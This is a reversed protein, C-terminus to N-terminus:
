WRVVSRHGLRPPRLAHSLGRGRHHGVHRQRRGAGAAAGGAVEEGGPACQRCLPGGRREADGRPEAGSRRGSGRSPDAEQADAAGAREGAAVFTLHQSVEDESERVETGALRVAPDSHSFNICDKLPASFFEGPDSHHLVFGTLDLVDVFGLFVPPAASNGLHELVPASLVDHESLMVLAKEVTDHASLTVLPKTSRRKLDAVTTQELLEVLTTPASGSDDKDGRGRKM